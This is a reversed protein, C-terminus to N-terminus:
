TSVVGMDYDSCFCILHSPGHVNVLCQLCQSANICLFLYSMSASTWPFRNFICLCLFHPPLNQTTSRQHPSSCIICFNSFSKLLWESSEFTLKLSSFFCPSSPSLPPLHHFLLVDHFHVFYLCFQKRIKFNMWVPFSFNRKVKYWMNKTTDRKTIQMRQNHTDTNVKTIQGANTHQIFAISFCDLPIWCEQASSCVHFKYRYKIQIQIQTHIKTKHTYKYKHSYKYKCKNYGSGIM